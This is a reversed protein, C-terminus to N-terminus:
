FFPFHHLHFFTYFTLFTFFSYLIFRLFIKNKIFSLLFVSIIFLIALRSQIAYVLFISIIFYLIRSNLKKEFRLILAFLSFIIFSFANGGVGFFGLLGTHRPWNFFEFFNNQGHSFVNISIMLILTFIISIKIVGILYKIFNQNLTMSSFFLFLTYSSLCIFVKRLFQLDKYILFSFIYSITITFFFLNILFFRVQTFENLKKKLNVLIFINIVAFLIISSYKLYFAFEKFLIIERYRHVAPHPATMFYDKYIILSGSINSFICIILFIISFIILFNKRNIFLSM